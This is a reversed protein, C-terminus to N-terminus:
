PLIRVARQFRKLRGSFSGFYPMAANGVSHHHSSAFAAFVPARCYDRRDPPSAHRRTQGQRHEVKLFEHYDPPDFDLLTGGSAFHQIFAMGIAYTAGISLTPM